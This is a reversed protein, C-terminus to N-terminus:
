RREFARPDNSGECGVVALELNVGFHRFRADEAATVPPWRRVDVGIGFNKFQEVLCPAQGRLVSQARQHVARQEAEDGSGPEPDRLCQLQLDSINIQLTRRDGHALGLEM